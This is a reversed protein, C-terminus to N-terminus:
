PGQRRPSSKLEREVIEKFQSIELKGKYLKGNVVFAPTGAIGLRFAEAADTRVKEFTAPTDICTEFAEIDLQIQEAIEILKAPALSDSQYAADHFEWFSGQKDACVAATAGSFGAAVGALPLHRFVLRVDDPYEDLLEALIPQSERCFRCQFDSFMTITVPANERGDSPGVGQLSILSPEIPPLDVKVKAKAILKSLAARYHKMHEDVGLHLRLREKAEDPSLLRFYPANKRYEEEVQENSVNIPGLTMRRRLEYVTINLRMAEATLVAHIIANDLAVKRVATAKEPEFSDFDPPLYPRLQVVTIPKGDVVALPKEAVQALGCLTAALLNLVLICPRISPNLSKLVVEENSM